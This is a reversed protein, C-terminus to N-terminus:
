GREKTKQGKEKRESESKGRRRENELGAKNNVMEADPVSVTSGDEDDVVVVLVRFWGLLM